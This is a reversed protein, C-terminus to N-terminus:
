RTEWWHFLCIVFMVSHTSLSLFLSFSAFNCFSLMLITQTWSLVRFHRPFVYRFFFGNGRSRQTNVFSIISSIMCSFFFPLFYVFFFNILSIFTFNYSFNRNKHNKHCTNPHKHNKVTKKQFFLSVTSTKIVKWTISWFTPVCISVKGDNSVQYQRRWNIRWLGRWNSVLVDLTM